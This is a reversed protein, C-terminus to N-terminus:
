RSGQVVETGAPLELDLSGPPLEPNPEWRTIEMRVTGGRRDAQEVAILQGAQFELRMHAVQSEGRPTLVLARREGEGQLEVRYRAPLERVDDGFVLFPSEPPAAGAPLPYVEQRKLRPHYLRVEGGSAAQAGPEAPEAAPIVQLVLELAGEADRVDMRLRPGQLLTVGHSVLPRRLLRLKKTQTFEVRLARLGRTRAAWEELFRTVQPSPPEQPAEERAPPAAAPEQAPPAPGPEQARASGLAFFSVWCALLWRMPGM